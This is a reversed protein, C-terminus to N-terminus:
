RYHSSIPSRSFPCVVLPVSRPRFPLPSLPQVLSLSVLFDGCVLINEERDIDAPNPGLKEDRDFGPGESWPGRRSCLPYWSDIWVDWVRPEEGVPGGAGDIDHTPFYSLYNRHFFEQSFFGPNYWKALSLITFILTTVGAAFAFPKLGNYRDESM